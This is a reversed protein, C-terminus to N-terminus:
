KENLRMIEEGTSETIVSEADHKLNHVEYIKVPKKKGKVVVNAVGKISVHGIRGQEIFERINQFVSETFLIETNFKKTLSEVRAGINVQDGIVTYDMKKGEAGINGVIVEGCNLGIGISLPERGESIWKEKLDDLKKNM